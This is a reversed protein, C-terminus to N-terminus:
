SPFIRLRKTRNKWEFVISNYNEVVLRSFFVVKNIEGQKKNKELKKKSISPVTIERSFSKQTKIPRLMREGVRWDEM